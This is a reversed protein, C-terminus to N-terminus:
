EGEVRAHIEATEEELRLSWLCSCSINLKSGGRIDVWGFYQSEDRFTLRFVM